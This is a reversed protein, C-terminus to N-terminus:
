FCLYLSCTPLKAAVGQGLTGFMCAIIVQVATHPAIFSIIATLFLKQFLDVSEWYWAHVSYSAFVFSFKYFAARETTDREGLSVGSARLAQWEHQTRWRLMNNSPPAVLAHKDHKAWELLAGLLLERENTYLVASLTRRMTKAQLQTAHAVRGLRQRVHFLVALFRNDPPPPESVSRMSSRMSARRSLGPVPATSLPLPLASAAAQLLLASTTTPQALLRPSAHGERAEVDDDDAPAAAHVAHLLQRVTLAAHSSEATPALEEKAQPEPAAAVFLQHLAHLHDMSISQTAMCVRACM